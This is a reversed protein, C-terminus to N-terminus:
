KRGKGKKGGGGGAALLKWLEKVVETVRDKNLVKLVKKDAIPNPLLRLERIKKEKLDAMGAPLEVIANDAVNLVALQQLLGLEEPLEVLRNRALALTELRALAGFNLHAPLLEAIANGSANLTVLSALPALPALTTLRNESLELVELHKLRGVCAPLSELANRSVDLFRLESLRDLTDPLASLGNGAVILTQLAALHGVLPSLAQGQLAPLRLELRNLIKFRWLAPDVAVGEPL